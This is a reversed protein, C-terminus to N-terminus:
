DRGTSIFFRDICRCNYDGEGPVMQGNSYPVDWPQVENNMAVHEPRERDDNVGIWQHMLKSTPVIGADIATQWSLRQGAKFADLTATRANTQANWSIWKRRYADVMKDIKEAPVGDGKAGLAKKLTDDFRRDRLKRRLAERGGAELEARFNDVYQQQTPALGVAERIGRAITKPGQGAAIGDAVAARVTERVDNKLTQVVRTDLTELATMVDPNLVNFQVVPGGNLKGGDPLNKAFYDMARATVTQLQGQVPAFARNLLADNLVDNVMFEFGLRDNVLQLLETDSLSDRLVAFAKLIKSSVDPMEAAARAQVRRWFLLQTQNM